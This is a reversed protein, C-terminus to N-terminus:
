FELEDNDPEDHAVDIGTKGASLAIAAAEDLTLQKTLQPVLELLMPLNLGSVVRITQPRTLYLKFAENYPTGGKLDALILVLETEHELLKKLRSQFSGIGAQDLEITMLHSSKGAIFEFSSKIGSALHGHSTLLIKLTIM